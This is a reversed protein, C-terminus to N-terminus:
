VLGPLFGSLTPLLRTLATVTPLGKARTVMQELVPDRVRLCAGGQGLRGLVTEALARPEKPGHRRRAVLGEHVASTPLLGMLVRVQSLLFTVWPFVGWLAAATPVSCPVARLRCLTGSGVCTPLAALTILAPVTEASGKTEGLTLLRVSPLAVFTGLALGGEPELFVEAQVLFNVSWSSGASALLGSLGGPLARWAEPVLRHTCFLLRIFTIFTPFGEAM